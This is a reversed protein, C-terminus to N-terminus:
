DTGRTCTARGVDLSSKETMSARQRGDIIQHAIAHHSRLRPRGGAAAPPGARDRPPRAARRLRRVAADGGTRTVIPRGSRPAWSSRRTLRRRLCLEPSVLFCVRGAKRWRGRDRHPAAGSLLGVVGRERGRPPPKTLPCLSRQHAPEDSPVVFAVISQFVDMFCSLCSSCFLFM